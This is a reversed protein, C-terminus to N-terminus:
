REKNAEFVLPFGPERIQSEEYEALADGALRM